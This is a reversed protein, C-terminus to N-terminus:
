VMTGATSLAQAMTELAQPLGNMAESTTGVSEQIQRLLEIMKDAQRSTIGERSGTEKDATEEPGEKEPEPRDVPQRDDQRPATPRLPLVAEAPQQEAAGQETARVPSSREGRGRASSEELEGEESRPAVPAPDGAEREARGDVPVLHQSVDTDIAQQKDQLAEGAAQQQNAPGTQRSPDNDIAQQKNQQAQGAAGQEGGEGAPMGVPGPADEDTASPAPHIEDSDPADTAEPADANEPSPADPEETKGFRPPREIPLGLRARRAQRKTWERRYVRARREEIPDPRHERSARSVTDIAKLTGKWDEESSANEKPDQDDEPVDETQAADTEAESAGQPIPREEDVADPAPRPDPQPEDDPEKAARVADPSEDQPAERPASAAEEEREAPQPPSKTVWADSSWNRPMVTNEEPERAAPGRNDPEDPMPHREEDPQVLAGTPASAEAPEFSEATPQPPEESPAEQRPQEIPELEEERDRTVPAQAPEAEPWPTVSAKPEDPSGSLTQKPEDDEEPPDLKDPLEDEATEQKRRMFRGFFGKVRDWLGGLM